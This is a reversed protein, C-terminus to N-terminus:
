EGEDKGNAEAPQATLKALLAAAADMICKNSHTIDDSAACESLCYRCKYGTSTAVLHSYTFRELVGRVEELTVGAPLVFTNFLENWTKLAVNHALQIEAQKKEADKARQELAEVHARIAAMAEHAEDAHGYQIRALMKNFDIESM